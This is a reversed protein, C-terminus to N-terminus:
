LLGSQNVKFVRQAPRFHGRGILLHFRGAEETGGSRQGQRRREQRELSVTTFFWAMVNIIVKIAM